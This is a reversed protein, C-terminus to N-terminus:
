LSFFLCLYLYNFEDVLLYVIMFYIFDHKKLFQGIKNRKLLFNFYDYHQVCDYIFYAIFAICLLFLFLYGM